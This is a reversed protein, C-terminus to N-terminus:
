GDFQVRRGIRQSRIGVLHPTVPRQDLPGALRSPSQASSQKISAFFVDYEIRYIARPRKWNKLVASGRIGQPARCIFVRERLLYEHRVNYLNLCLNSIEHGDLRGAPAQPQWIGNLLNDSM